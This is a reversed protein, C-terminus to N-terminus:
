APYALLSILSFANIFPYGCVTGIGRVKSGQNKGPSLRSKRHGPLKPALNTGKTNRQAGKRNFNMNGPTEKM